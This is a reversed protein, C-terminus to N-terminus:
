SIRQRRRAMSRAALANSSRKIRFHERERSLTEIASHSIGRPNDLIAAALSQLRALMSGALANDNGNTAYFEALAERTELEAQQVLRARETLSEDIIAILDILRDQSIPM